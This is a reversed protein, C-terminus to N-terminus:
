ASAAPRLGPRGSSRSRSLPASSGAPSASSSGTSGPSASLPSASRVNLGAERGLSTSSSSGGRSRGNPRPGAIPPPPPRPRRPPGRRDLPPGRSPAGDIRDRNVVATTTTAITKTTRMSTTPMWSQVSAIQNLLTPKSPTNQVRTPTWTPRNTAPSTTASATSSPFTQSAPRSTGGTSAPRPPVSRLQISRSFSAAALASPPRPRPGHSGHRPRRSGRSGTSTLGTSSGSGTGSPRTTIMM